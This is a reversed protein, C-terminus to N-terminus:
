LRHALARDDPHGVVLPDLRNDRHDRQPGAGRGVGLRQDGPDRFLDRRVFLRALHDEDVLDGLRRHALEISLGQAIADAVAALGSALLSRGCTATTAALAVIETRLPPDRPFEVIAERAPAALSRPPYWPRTTSGSRSGPRM